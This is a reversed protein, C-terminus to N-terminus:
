HLRKADLPPDDILREPPLGFRRHTKLWTSFFRLHAAHTPDLKDVAFARTKNGLVAPKAFVDDVLMTTSVGSKVAVYVVAARNALNPATGTLHCWGDRDVGPATPAIAVGDTQTDLDLVRMEVDGCLKSKPKAWLSVEIGGERPSALWGIMQDGAGLSVCRVGSRCHGGTDFDLTKQGKDNFALWPMQDQRGTLEFDGDAVLNTEAPTNGFPNRQEVSRKFPPPVAQPTTSGPSWSPSPPDGTGGCGIALAAVLGLSARALRVSM